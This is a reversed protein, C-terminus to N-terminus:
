RFPILSALSGEFTCITMGFVFWKQSAEEFIDTRLGWFLSIRRSNRLKQSVTSLLLLFSAMRRCMKWFHCSAHLASPRTGIRDAIKGGWRDLTSRRGRFLSALDYSTSCRDRLIMKAFRFIPHELICGMEPFGRGSRRVHRISIDRARHRGHSICRELDEEFTGGRGDNKSNGCHGWTQTLKPLTCFGNRGGRLVVDLSWFLSVLSDTKSAKSKHAHKAGCRRGTKRCRM